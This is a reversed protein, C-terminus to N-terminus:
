RPRRGIMRARRRDRDTATRTVRKSFMGVGRRRPFDAYDEPSPKTGYKTLRRARGLLRGAEQPRDHRRANEALHILHDFLPQFDVSVKERALRTEYLREQWSAQRPDRVGHERRRAAGRLRGGRGHLEPWVLTSEWVQDRVGRENTVRYLWGNSPSYEGIDTVRGRPTDDGPKFAPKLPIREVARVIHGAAMSAGPLMATGSPGRTRQMTMDKSRDAVRHAEDLYYRANPYRKDALSQADLLLRMAANMERQILAPEKDRWAKAFQHRLATARERLKQPALDARAM